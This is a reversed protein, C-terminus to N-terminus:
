QVLIQLKSRRGKERGERRSAAKTSDRARREMERAYVKAFGIVKLNNEHISFNEARRTPSISLTKM